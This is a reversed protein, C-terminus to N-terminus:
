VAGIARVSTQESGAGLLNRAREGLIAIQDSVPISLNKVQLV